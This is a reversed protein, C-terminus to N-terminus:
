ASFPTVKSLQTSYIAAVRRSVLDIREIGFQMTTWSRSQKMIRGTLAGSSPPNGTQRFISAM